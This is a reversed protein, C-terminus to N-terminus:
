SAWPVIEEKAVNLRWIRVGSNSASVISGLRKAETNLLPHRLVRRAYAAADSHHVDLHVLCYKSHCLSRKRFDSDVSLLTPNRLRLLLPIIEEDSMGKRGVDYGIHKAPIGWKALLMRQEDPMNEDLVIM